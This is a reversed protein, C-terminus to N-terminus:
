PTSAVAMPPNVPAAVYPTAYLAMTDANGLRVKGDRPQGGREIAQADPQEGVDM